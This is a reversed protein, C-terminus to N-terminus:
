LDGKAEGESGRWISEWFVDLSQQWILLFSLCIFAVLFSLSGRRLTGKLGNLFSNMIHQVRYLGTLCYIKKRNIWKFLSFIRLFLSPSAFPFRLPLSPTGIFM